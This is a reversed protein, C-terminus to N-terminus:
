CRQRQYDRSCRRFYGACRPLPEALMIARTGAATVAPMKVFNTWAAREAAKEDSQRQIDAAQLSTHTLLLQRLSQLEQATFLIASGNAQAIQLNGQASGIQTKLGSAHKARYRDDRDISTPRSATDLARQLQYEDVVASTQRRRNSPVVPLHHLHQKAPQVLQYPEPSAFSIATGSSLTSNYSQLSAGNSSMSLSAFPTTNM